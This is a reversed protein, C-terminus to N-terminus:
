TTGSCGNLHGDGHRLKLGAAGARHDPLYVLLEQDAADAEVTIVVGFHQGAQVGETLLSNHILGGSSIQVTVEIHLPHPEQSDFWRCRM